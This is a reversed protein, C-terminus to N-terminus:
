ATEFMRYSGVEDVQMNIPPEECRDKIAETFRKFADLALLPNVGDATEVRALHMFTVGDGGRLTAYRLGTPASRELEEYVARVAAVNEEARDAKVKYRVMVQRM